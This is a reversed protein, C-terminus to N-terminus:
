TSTSSESAATQITSVQSETTTAAQRWKAAPKAEIALLRLMMDLAVLAFCMAWVPIYGAESFVLGGLLPSSLTGLALAIGMWGMAWGVREAPVTDVILALGVSWTLASSMGQLVRGVVLMAVNQMFCLILTGAGVLVLGALMPTRRDKTRDALVGWIATTKAM